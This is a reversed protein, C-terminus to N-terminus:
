NVLIEEATKLKGAQKSYFEPNATNFCPIPKTEKNVLLHVDQTIHDVSDLVSMMSAALRERNPAQIIVLINPHGELTDVIQAGSITQLNHVAQACKEELVDLLM